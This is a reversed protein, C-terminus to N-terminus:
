QGSQGSTKATQAVGIKPNRIVQSAGIIPPRGGQAGETVDVLQKETVVLADESNPKM